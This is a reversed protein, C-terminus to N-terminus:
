GSVEYNQTVWTTEKVQPELGIEQQKAICDRLMEVSTKHSVPDRLAPAIEVLPLLVFLRRAIGPHPLILTPDHSIRDDWYLLDLDLTRDEPKDKGRRIRGLSSEVALMEALLEEPQMSTLLSGVANIFWNKSAMGVPETRYPKSLSLLKIGKVKGLRIWAELINKRRSGLNSGLGIYATVM